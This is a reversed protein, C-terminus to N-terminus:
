QTKAPELDVEVHCLQPAAYSPPLAEKVNIIRLAPGAKGLDPQSWGPMVLACWVFLGQEAYLRTVTRPQFRFLPQTGQGPAHIAACVCASGFCVCAAASLLFVRPAELKSRSEM